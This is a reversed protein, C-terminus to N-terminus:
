CFYTVVSVVIFLGFRIFPCTLITGIRFSQGQRKVASFEITLVMTLNLRDERVRGVCDNREHRIPWSNTM